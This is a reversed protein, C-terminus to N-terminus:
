WTTPAATTPSPRRATGACETSRTTRSPRLATASRASSPTSPRRAPRRARGPSPPCPAAPPTATRPRATRSCATARTTPSPRAGAEVRNGADDWAYATTTTGKTWSTLRSARDYGYTNEAAGATGKTTKKTLRDDLDYDYATSATETTGSPDTLRDSTLRGLGDYGFTRRATEAWQGTGLPDTAYRETTPRDALDFGYWIEGGTISDWTWDLRGASDYGYYAEGGPTSRMTMNGDADYTYSADGGPGAGAILQGRDNYSFTDRDLVDHTGAATMRGALDYSFSRHTTAAEAGTGTEGTMRGLGDYTRERGVGGPLLEAVDQGAADYLTTWTRDAAAPHAATAPETTSQPLNWPTFTHITPNGRGDTTRTRNGAADYGFSTTIAKGPSVPEVQQTMRGLADYTYTTRNGTASTVATQNGDADFEASVSRLVATGTGYDSAGTVQGLADYEVRSKRGTADTTEIRRGLGDYAFSTWGGVPSMAATLDGAPNYTALSTNGGPTTAATRNGADDWTYRSTLNQLAPYREVTTETLVRGLEDYTAETRAGMPDTVSLPLGTPTWTYRTVGAGSLDTSEPAFPSPEELSGTGGAVPDTQRVVNGFQDYGVRTTRGLPDTVATPRGLADYETRSVATIKSGGPPTYDPLTVAVQRGLRDVDSRTVSGRADRSETLEGFTNYGVLGSPRVTTAAAGNEEAKVPAATEEVLRGLEDYRLSTTFAAADAGPVNGRPSVESTVLGRDDYTRTTVRTDAGDTLTSTTPNGAADYETTATLSSGSADISQDLRTIRDDGDYGYTTVRNLGTPDLASRTTRGTADVAHTVVTTGGGTVQRTLHGAGDYTNSELVIDRRSGDAQSVQRAVTTAPLGDDYYTYETTAGMADTSSALRGAPDYAHSGVVLDRPEGSPDGTWEKLTTEALQGRATYSTVFATGLADTERVVRGFGDYAFSTTNGEADTVRDQRGFADYHFTTTRKADGGTTDETSETLVAGDADFSRSIVATHTTGTIENKVGAGTETVIRSQANYTYSTTVGDPHADSVQTESLKRGLGDYTFTTVLGSPSTM